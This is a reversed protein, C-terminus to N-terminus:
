SDDGNDTEADDSGSFVARVGTEGATSSVASEGSNLDVRLEAGTIVNEGRTLVVDGTMLITNSAIDYIANEGRAAEDPGTIYFVNGYAHMRRIEGWGAGATGGGERDFFVEVRDARLNAEGQVADVNGTFVARGEADFVELRDATIDVPGSQPTLQAAAPAAVGLAGLLALSRIIAATM